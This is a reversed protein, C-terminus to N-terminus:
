EHRQLYSNIETSVDGSSPRKNLCKIEDFLRNHLLYLVPREGIGIRIQRVNYYVEAVGEPGKVGKPISARM